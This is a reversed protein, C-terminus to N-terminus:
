PKPHKLGEIFLKAQAAQPSSPAIEIVKTWAKVADDNDKQDQAYIVGLNFFSQAHNPNLKTAQKLNAIAKDFAGLQRYMVAQDTLVDPNGPALALAKAYADVASQAQHLDFYDNGLAIWANVNKPDGAVVQLNSAIRGQIEMPNPGAPAGAAAPPPTIAPPDHPSHAAGVFYGALFGAFLGIALGSLLNRNL